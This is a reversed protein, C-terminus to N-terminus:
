AAQAVRLPPYANVRLVGEFTKEQQNSSSGKILDNIIFSM